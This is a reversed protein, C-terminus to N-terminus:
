RGTNQATKMQFPVSKVIGLVIASFRYNQKASDAAVARVVPMDRYEVGRGLGYTMLKQTVTRVFLEPRKMVAKRLAVPGDVRSGDALQGVPDIAGGPEKVRWEGIGNFNELALGLPDMVRHCTACTPSARHMELRARLSRAEEGPKNESLDPV